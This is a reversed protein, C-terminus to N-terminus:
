DFHTIGLKWLKLNIIIHGSIHFVSKKEKPIQDRCYLLSSRNSNILSPIIKSSQLFFFFFAKNVFCSNAKM